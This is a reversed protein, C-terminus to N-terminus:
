DLIERIYTQRAVIRGAASDISAIALDMLPLLVTPGAELKVELTDVSPFNHVEIVTGIQSDDEDGFVALGKLEYHYFRGPERKPLMEQGIFLRQGRLAEAATRDPADAFRCRFEKPLAVIETVTADSASELNKGRLVSCPTTLASFTDGFAEVACFGELGVPRKVVAIAIWDQQM